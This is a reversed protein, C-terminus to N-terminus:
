PAVEGSTAQMAASGLARDRFENLRAVIDELPTDYADVVMGPERWMRLFRSVPNEAGLAVRVHRIGTLSQFPSPEHLKFPALDTWPWAFTRKGCAYTLGADDLRIECDRSFRTRQWACQCVPIMVIMGVFIMWSSLTAGSGLEIGRTWIVIDLTLKSIALVLVIVALARWPLSGDRSGDIAADKTPYVLSSM